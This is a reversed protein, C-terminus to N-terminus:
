RRMANTVFDDLDAATSRGWKWCDSRRVLAALAEFGGGNADDLDFAYETLRALARSRRIPEATGSPVEPSLFVIMGPEAMPSVAAGLSSAAVFQQAEETPLYTAPPSQLLRRDLGLVDISPARLGIPKAAGRVRGDPQVATIDDTVYGLGAMALSTTATTKGAGSAGVVLVARGRLSWPAPTCSCRSGLHRAVIRRNLHWHLTGLGRGATSATAIKERDRTVVFQDPAASSLEFREAVEVAGDSSDAYVHQLHAALAEDPVAIEYSLDLLRGRVLTVVDNGATRRRDESRRSRRATHTASGPPRDQM